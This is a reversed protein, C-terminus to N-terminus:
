VSMADRVLWVLLVTKLACTIGSPFADLVSVPTLRFDAGEGKGTQLVESLVEPNLFGRKLMCRCVCARIHM